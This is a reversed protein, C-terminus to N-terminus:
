LFGFSTLCVITNLTLFYKKKIFITSLGEKYLTNPYFITGSCISLVTIIGSEVSVGQMSKLSVYMQTCSIRCMFHQLDVLLFWHVGGMQNRSM